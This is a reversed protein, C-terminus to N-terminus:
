SRLHFTPILAHTRDVGLGILMLFSTKNPPVPLSCARNPTCYFVMVAKSSSRFMCVFYNCHLINILYEKCKLYRNLEQILASVQSTHLHPLSYVSATGTTLAAGSNALYRLPFWDLCSFFTRPLPFPIDTFARLQLSNM